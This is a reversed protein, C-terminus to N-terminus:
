SPCPPYIITRGFSLWEGCPEGESWHGREALGRFSWYAEYPGDLQGEKYNEVVSPGGHRFYSTSPGNLRGNEWTERTSLQGNFHYWEHVGDWHGNVLTGQERVIDEDWMSIVPGSYPEFTEPHLYLGRRQVLEELNMPTQASALTPGVLTLALALPAIRKM